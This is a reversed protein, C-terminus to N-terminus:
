FVFLSLIEERDKERLYPNEKIERIMSEYDRDFEVLLQFTKQPDYGIRTKLSGAKAILGSLNVFPDTSNQAYKLKQMIEPLRGIIGAYRYLLEDRGITAPDASITVILKETRRHEPIFIRVALRGADYSWAGKEPDPSYPYVADGVQVRAPPYNTVLQLEIDQVPKMGEFSGEAPFIVVQLMGQELRKAEMRTRAFAGTRYGDTLGDDEYVSCVSVSTDGGPILCVVLTDPPPQLRQISKPYMPVISGARVWVPIESMTYQRHYVSDGVAFAGTFLDYWQGKPLWISRESIGGISKATVPAVIMDDGFMYQGTFGYAREQEPYDYYMPRCLSVGTEYAKRAAGYIYPHLAYRWQLADLMRDFQGPYMYIRREIEKSKTCHTRVIPSFVGFQIWRLFLEPDPDNGMHGGIDHSWYGYGVNSATATFRPQFALAEWTSHSDGSFGIQYHHKGLGGWRHFLLPRRKGEKEMETFFVHNLWWTNSLNRIGKNERWQQWDLWWFDIGQKEIPHLVSDFWIRTWKKEEIRFPINKKGATNFGYARAFGEYVDEMPAIGSAPHLNLATKLKQDETWALFRAPDPFFDRNWTYGTWGVGEGFEDRVPNTISLSYTKHWDMDIVLVDMPIRYRRMDSVLQRLEEDSYMWYRSWWYGFAYRPPMPIRGAIRTFDGLLAKYDHGYGFFYWDLSAAAPRETVWSTSDFLCSQTDDQLVWGSRSLLGNELRVDKEGNTGDLTRTTGKLNATDNMGPHWRVERDNFRFTIFLNEATFRESGTKYHLSLRETQITLWGKKEKKTFAPVPLNRHIFVLSARDEFRQDESWEMRIIGPTLVTFRAHGSRIVAGPAAVPNNQQAMVTSAAVMLILTLLIRATYM